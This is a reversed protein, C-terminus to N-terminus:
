EEREWENRAALVLPSFQHYFRLVLALYTLLAGCQVVALIVHWGRDLFFAPWARVLVAMLTVLAILGPVLLRRNLRMEADLETWMRVSAPGTHSRAEEANDHADLWFGVASMLGAMVTADYWRAPNGAQTFMLAEFLSLVIYYFSHVFRIPWRIITFVHFVARCWVTCIFALGCIVYPVSTYIRDHVIPRAADVLFYLAVGQVISLLTMELNIALSDLDHNRPPRPPNASM